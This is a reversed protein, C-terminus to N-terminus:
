TIETKLTNLWQFVECAKFFKSTLTLVKSIFQWKRSSSPLVTLKWNGKHSTVSPFWPLQIWWFLYGTWASSYYYWSERRVRRMSPIAWQIGFFLHFTSIEKVLVHLFSCFLLLVSKFFMKSFTYLILCAFYPSFWHLTIWPFFLWPALSELKGKARM